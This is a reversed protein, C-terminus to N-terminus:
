GQKRSKSTLRNETEKRSKASRSFRLCLHLNRWLTMGEGRYFRLLKGILGGDLASGLKPSLLPGPAVGLPLTLFLVLTQRQPVMVDERRESRTAMNGVMGRASQADGSLRVM